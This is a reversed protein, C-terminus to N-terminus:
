EAIADFEGQAELTIIVNNPLCVLPSHWGQNVCTKNPCPSDTIRVRGDKIEFSTNGLPGAVTYIGNQKASYEYHRGDANVKVVSGKQSFSKLTLFLGLGIIGSAFILDLPRLRKMSENYFLFFARVLRASLFAEDNRPACRRLM